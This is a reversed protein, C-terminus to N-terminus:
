VLSHRDTATAMSLIQPMYVDAPESSRNNAAVNGNRGVKSAVGWRWKSQVLCHGVARQQKSSVQQCATAATHQIPYSLILENLRM